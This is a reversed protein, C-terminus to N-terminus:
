ETSTFFLFIAAILSIAMGLTVVVGPWGWTAWPIGVTSGLIGSGMYASSFFLASIMAKRHSALRGVWANCVTFVGFYGITFIALGVVVVALSEFLSVALGAAMLCSFIFAIRRYGHRDALEGSKACAFSGIAYLLFVSGVASPALNYPSESLRFGLYNYMAVFSGMLLFGVIFLLPLTREGYVRRIDAFLSSWVLHSSSFFRPPPLLKAFLFAGAIGVLGLILLSSRWGLWGTVIAAVLRGFMGGLANGAIYLGVAKGRASAAIEDGLYAVAAAPVCASFMGLLARLVLLTTFDNALACLMSFIASGFVGIRMLKERGFRDAMMALPILSLAMGTTGASMSLSAVGPSVAFENALQPLIPQPSHLLTFTTFSGTSLAIAAKWFAPTGAQIQQLSTPDSM